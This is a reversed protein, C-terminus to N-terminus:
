TISPREGSHRCAFLLHQSACCCVLQPHRNDPTSFLYHQSIYEVHWSTTQFAIRSMVLKLCMFQAFSVPNNLCFITCSTFDHSYLYLFIIGHSQYLHVSFTKSCRCLTPFDSEHIHTPHLSVMILSSLERAGVWGYEEVGGGETSKGGCVFLCGKHGDFVVGAHLSSQSEYIRQIHVCRTIDYVLLAGAAGRYYSRTISRFSEQGAQVVMFRVHPLRM